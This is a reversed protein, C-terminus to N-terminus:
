LRPVSLANSDDSDLSLLSPGLAAQQQRGRMSNLPASAAALGTPMDAASLLAM